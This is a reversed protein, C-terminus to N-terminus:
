ESHKEVARNTKPSRVPPWGIHLETEVEIKQAEENGPTGETVPVTQERTQQLKCQEEVKQRLVGNERLLAAQKERLKTMQDELLQNKKGRIKQLSQELKAETQHLEEISCSELNEALLKKKSAELFEIKKQLAAAEFKLQQINQETVRNHHSVSDKSHSKYREITKPMSTSSFEYLKGRPSFVILGVEADCLVSLEFAKKLLGSRRKSFTVQRSTPNEIRKMETKGRVM